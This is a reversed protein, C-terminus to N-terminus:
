LWFASSNLFCKCSLSISYILSVMIVFFVISKIFSYFVCVDSSYYLFYRSNYHTIQKYLIYDPFKYLLTTYYIIYTKRLYFISHNYIQVFLYVMTNKNLLLNVNFELFFPIRYPVQVTHLLVFLCLVNM